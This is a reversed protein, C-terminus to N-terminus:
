DIARGRKVKRHNAERQTVNKLELLPGQAGRADEVPQQGLEERFHQGRSEKRALASQAVLRATLCLNEMELAKRLDSEREFRMRPLQEELQEIEILGQELGTGTRLPGLHRDVVENLRQQLEGPM